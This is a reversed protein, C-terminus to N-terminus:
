KQITLDDICMYAPTTLGWDNNKSGSFSFSLSKVKGLASLDAWQWDKVYTGDKALEIDVTATCGDAKVGTVTCVLWDAAEFKGPTMGDGNLIADVTWANNTFYFGMVQTATAFDITEGYTQVVCFNKGTHATGTINNFQDPTLSVYTTESRNSIAYGMWSGWSPTYSTNFTAGQEKYTCAYGTAGWNDFPTGTEDGCWFGADNLAQNEFSIVAVSSQSSPNDEVACSTFAAGVVAAALFLKNIKMM